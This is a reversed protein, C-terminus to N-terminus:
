ENGSRASELQTGRSRARNRKEIARRVRIVAVASTTAVIVWLALVVWPNSRVAFPTAILVVIASVVNVQIGPDTLWTRM